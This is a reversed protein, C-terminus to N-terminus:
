WRGPKILAGIGLILAGLAYVFAIPALAFLWRARSTRVRRYVVITLALWVAPVVVGFALYAPVRNAWTQPHTWSCPEIALNGRLYCFSVNLRPNLGFCAHVPQSISDCSLFHRLLLRSM